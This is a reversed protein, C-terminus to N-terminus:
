PCLRLSSQTRQMPSDLLCPDLVFCSAQILFEFGGPSFIGLILFLPRLCRPFHRNGAKELNMATFVYKDLLWRVQGEVLM